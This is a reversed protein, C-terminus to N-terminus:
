WRRRMDPIFYSIKVKSFYYSDNGRSWTRTFGDLYDFFTKRWGIEYGIRFDSSIVYYGGIGMPIAPQFKSYDDFQFNAPDPVTLDPNHYFGALGLYAYFDFPFNNYLKPAYVEGIVAIEYIKNNFYFDRTRGAALSDAGHIKGYNFAGRVAFFEHFKYRGFVGVNLSTTNWQTNLFSPKQNASTGSVDTLSHSTGVNFGIDWGFRLMWMDRRSLQLPRRTGGPQRSRSPPNFFLYDNAEDNLESNEEIILESNLEGASSEASPIILFVIATFFALLLRM